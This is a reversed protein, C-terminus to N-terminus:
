VYISVYITFAPHSHSLVARKMTISFVVFFHVCFSSNAFATIVEAKGRVELEGIIGIVVSLSGYSCDPLHPLPPIGTQKIAVGRGWRRHCTPTGM